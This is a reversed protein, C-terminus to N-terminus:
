SNDKSVIKWDKLNIDFNTNNYLEIWENNYSDKTGMWAIENIVVSSAKAESILLSFFFFLGVVASLIRYM